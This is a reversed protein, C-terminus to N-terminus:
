LPPNSAPPQRRRHTRRRHRGTGPNQRRSAAPRAPPPSPPSDTPPPNDTPPPPHPHTRRRHRGTGRRTTMRTRRVLDRSIPMDISGVNRVPRGHVLALYKKKIRRMAWQIALKRHAEDTKAVVILGSTNRDLRHVIGPRIEGGVKSLNGFRHLLANVLTGRNRADDTAGAGAHVMMGAPKEIVVLDRDEYVIELPIAEPMARLPPREAPGLLEIREGGRLKLSAKATKGDVHVKEQAILDQARARSIAPLKAVLYQDLRRGADDAGVILERAFEDSLSM